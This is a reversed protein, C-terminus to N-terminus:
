MGVLLTCPPELKEVDHGVIIITIKTVAMMPPIFHYRMTIQTQM